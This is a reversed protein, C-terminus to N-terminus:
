REIRHMEWYDTHGDQYTYSWTFENDNLVCINFTTWWKTGKPTSRRVIQDSMRSAWELDGMMDINVGMLDMVFNYPSENFLFKNDVVNWQGHCEYDYTWCTQGTTNATHYQIAHDVYDGSYNFDITGEEYCTITYGGEPSPYTWSHTYEYQGPILSKQWPTYSTSKCSGFLVAAAIIITALIKKM